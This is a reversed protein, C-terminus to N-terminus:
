DKCTESVPLASLTPERPTYLLSEQKSGSRIAPPRLSTQSCTSQGRLRGQRVGVSAQVSLIVGVGASGVCICDSVQYLLHVFLTSLHARGSRRAHLTDLTQM